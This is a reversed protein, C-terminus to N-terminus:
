IRAKNLYFDFSKIVWSLCLITLNLKIWNETQKSKTQEPETELNAM